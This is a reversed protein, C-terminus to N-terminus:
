KIQPKRRLMIFGFLIISIMYVPLIVSLFDVKRSIKLDHYFYLILSAILVNILIVLIKNSLFKSEQKRFYFILVNIIFGPAAMLFSVFLFFLLTLEFYILSYSNFGYYNIYTDLKDLPIFCSFVSIVFTATFMAVCWYFFFKIILKLLRM